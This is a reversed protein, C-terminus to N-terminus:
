LKIRKEELIKFSASEVIELEIIHKQLNYKEALQKFGLNRLDKAIVKLTEKAEELTTGEKLEVIDFFRIIFGDYVEGIRIEYKM